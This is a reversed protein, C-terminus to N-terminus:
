QYNMPFSLYPQPNVVAMANGGFVDAKLYLTDNAASYAFMRDPGFPVNSSFENLPFPQFVVYSSASGPRILYHGALNNWTLWPGGGSNSSFDWVCNGGTQPVFTSLDITATAYGMTASDGMQFCNAATFAPQGTVYLSSLFILVSLLSKKM